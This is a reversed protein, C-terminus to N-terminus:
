VKYVPFLRDREVRGDACDLVKDVKKGLAQKDMRDLGLRDLARKCDLVLKDVKDPEPKDFGLAAM